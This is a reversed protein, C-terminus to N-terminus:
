ELIFRFTYDKKIYKKIEHNKDTILLNQTDDIISGIDLFGKDTKKFKPKAYAKLGILDHYIVYKPSIM